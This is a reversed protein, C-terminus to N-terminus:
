FFMLYLLWSTEERIYNIKDEGIKGVRVTSPNSPIYSIWLQSGLPYENDLVLHFNQGDAQVTHYHCTGYQLGKRCQHTHAFVVKSLVSKGNNAMSLTEYFM